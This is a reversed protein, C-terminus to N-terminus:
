DRGEFRAALEKGWNLIVNFATTSSNYGTNRVMIFRKGDPSIDFNPTPNNPLVMQTVDFLDRTHGLSFAPSTRVPTATMKGQSSIYYISRGDPSWMPNLAGKNSVQWKGIMEPYSIVFSEQRGTENSGYAIFRGDPSIMGEYEYTDSNFLNRPEGRKELDFIFIDGDGVGGVRNLILQRGDPSFSIPYFPKDTALILEENRSGDVPKVMIGQTGGQGSAFYLRKSDRSWVPNWMSKGFTFRSFVGTALDYLWIDNDTGYTRGLTVALKSGDPSLRPISYADSPLPLPETTGDMSVWVLERETNQAGAIYVLSGTRSVDFYSIGSGPDGAVDDLVPQLAETTKFEKLSFPAAMLTGNRAVILYGPAVYRAMEGRVNLIHREGTKLSQIALEADTYSNPSNENGITYLIWEGDPLIQPWRHSREFRTTDLTSVAKVAGGSVPVGFLGASYDPSFVITGDPGWSAGRPGAMEALIEVGGGEAPIRKLKGDAVFGIWRGDPSFFPAIAGTTGDLPQAEFSDM